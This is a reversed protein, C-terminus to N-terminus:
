KSGSTLFDRFPDLYALKRKQYITPGLIVKVWSDSFYILLGQKAQNMRRSQEGCKEMYIRRLSM